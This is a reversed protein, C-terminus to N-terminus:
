INKPICFAVVADRKSLTECVSELDLLLAATASIYYNKVLLDSFHQFCAHASRRVQRKYLAFTKEIPNLTLAVEFKETFLNV